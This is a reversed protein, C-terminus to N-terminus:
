KKPNMCPKPSQVLTTKANPFTTPISVIRLKFWFAPINELTATETPQLKLDPYLNHALPTRTPQQAFDSKSPRHVIKPDLRPDGLEPKPAPSLVRSSPFVVLPNSLAFLNSFDPKHLQFQPPMQFLQNPDFSPQATAQCLAPVSASLLLAPLLTKM